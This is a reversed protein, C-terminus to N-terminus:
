PRTLWVTGRYFAPTTPPVPLTLTSNSGIINSYGPVVSWTGTSLNPAGEIAYHRTSGEYGPVGVTSVSFFSVYKTGAVISPIVSRTWVNHGYHDNSDDHGTLTKM